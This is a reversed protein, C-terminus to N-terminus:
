VRSGALEATAERVEEAGNARRSRLLFFGSGCALVVLASIAAVIGVTFLVPWYHLVIVHRGPPVRAELMLGDEWRRLELPRGDITARWGPVATLRLRLVQATPAESEIRWQAPGDHTVHVPTGSSATSAGTGRSDSDTITAQAAGPVYYLGEPGVRGVLKSGSPGPEGPPELVYGIGLLRAEDATTISACFIGLRSLDSPTRVGSIKQWARYYAEPLIPDYVAMEDVGFGINADARIGVEETFPQVSGLGTCSGFGVLQDGVTRQLASVAPTPSFFSSSLSWFSVGSAILFAAELSVLAGSVTRADFRDRLGPRTSRDSRMAAFLAAGLVVQAAPWLLSRQYAAAGFAGLAISLEVLGVVVASAAFAGLAWRRARWRTRGDLVEETGLACLIAMAFTMASVAQDWNVDRGGPFLHVLRDAPSLYTLAGAVVAVALLAGAEPRRRVSAVGVVALSIAVVGLYASTKFNNGQLGSALLDPLHSLPYASTNGPAYRRASELGMQVGPLLLPAGIAAGGLSGAALRLLIAGVRDRRSGRTFWLYLLAFVALAGTLIVLGAPYGGYIAFAASAALLWVGLVRRRGSLIMTAAAFVWGYWCTVGTISWGAYHVMAGSLEFVVGGAVSSMPRLGLVRCFTYTGTGAIVLKALVVVTYAFSAPVLYALLMPLSFVASEWNFALPAGLVNYPNWLPLHGHHVQQWAANTMPVFFLIQDSQMANHVTAGTHATLGLRSLIDFPGLSVGPRLAPAVVAVAALVTFAVGLVDHLRRPHRSGDTTDDGTPIQGSAM